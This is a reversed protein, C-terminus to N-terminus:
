YSFHYSHIFSCIHKLWLPFESIWRSNFPRGCSSIDNHVGKSWAFYWLARLRQKHFGDHHIAIISGMTTNSYARWSQLYAGIKNSTHWILNTYRVHTCNICVFKTDTTKNKDLRIRDITYKVFVIAYNGTPYAGFICPKKIIVDRCNPDGISPSPFEWVVCSEM